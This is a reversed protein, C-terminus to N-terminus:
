KITLVESFKRERNEYIYDFLCQAKEEGTMRVFSGDMGPGSTFFKHIEERITEKNLPKLVKRKKYVISGSNGPLNCQEIENIDMYHCIGGKLEVKQKKLELIRERLPKLQTELHKIQKNIESFRTVDNRFSNIDGSLDFEM